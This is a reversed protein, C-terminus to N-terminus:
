DNELFHFIVLIIYPVCLVFVFLQLLLILLAFNVFATLSWTHDAVVGLFLLKKEDCRERRYGAKGLGEQAEPKGQKAEVKWEAKPKGQGEGGVQKPSIGTLALGSPTQDMRQIDTSEGQGAMFNLAVDAGHTGLWHAM